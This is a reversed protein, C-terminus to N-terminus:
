AFYNGIIEVFNKTNEINRTEFDFSEVLQQRTSIAWSIESESEGYAVGCPSDEDNETQYDKRTKGPEPVVISICGCISAIQILTTQTDYSYCFKCRNFVAVKEEEKMDDIVPGEFSKPLDIRDKGKRIIYCNGSRESFNYQRYLHKDFSAIYVKYLNPNLTKENFIDRYTVFLDSPSYANPDDAYKYHYLLWRVVNKAKLPNGYVCEPYLVIADEPIRSPFIEIRTDSFQRPCRFLLFSTRHKKQMINFVISRYHCKIKEFLNKGLAKEVERVIRADYGLRCLCRCLESLVVTGGGYGDYSVIYIRKNLMVVSM